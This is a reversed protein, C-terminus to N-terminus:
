KKIIVLLSRFPQKLSAPIERVGASFNGLEESLGTTLVVSFLPGLIRWSQGRTMM